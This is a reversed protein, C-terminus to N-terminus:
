MNKKGNHFFIIYGILMVPIMVKSPLYDGVQNQLIYMVIPNIIVSIAGIIFAYAMSQMRTKAILEDEIKEKAGGYLLLGLSFFSILLQGSLNKSYKFAEPNLISVIIVILITGIGIKKFYNPLPLRLLPRHHRQKEM